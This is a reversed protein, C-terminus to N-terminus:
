TARAALWREGNLTVRGNQVLGFEGANRAAEVLHPLPVGILTAVEATPKAAPDSQLHLIWKEIALDPKM